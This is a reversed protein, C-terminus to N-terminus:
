RRGPAAVAAVDLEDHQEIIPLEFCFRTGHIVREDIWIRGGHVEVISRAIALGLGLGAGKERALMRDGVQYLRDFIRGRHEKHIGSGNDAVSVRVCDGVKAAAV